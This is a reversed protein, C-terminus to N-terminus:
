PSMPDSVAPDIMPPVIWDPVAEGCAVNLRVPMTSVFACVESATL